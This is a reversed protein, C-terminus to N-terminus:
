VELATTDHESRMTVHTAAGQPVLQARLELQQFWSSM